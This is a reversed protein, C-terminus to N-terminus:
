ALSLPEGVQFLTEYIEDTKYNSTLIFINISGYCQFCNETNSFLNKYLDKIKIRNNSLLDVYSGNIPYIGKSLYLHCDSCSLNYKQLISKYSDLPINSSPGTIFDIDEILDKYKASPTFVIGKFFNTQITPQAQIHFINEPNYKSSLQIREQDYKHHIPLGILIKPYEASNFYKFQSVDVPTETLSVDVFKM